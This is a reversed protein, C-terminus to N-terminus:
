CHRCIRLFKYMKLIESWFISFSKHHSWKGDGTPGCYGTWIHRSFKVRTLLETRFYILSQLYTTYKCVSLRTKLRHISLISLASPLRLSAGQLSHSGQNSGPHPVLFIAYMKITLCSENQFNIWSEFRVHFTQLLDRVIEGQRPIQYPEFVPSNHALPVSVSESGGIHCEREFWVYFAKYENCAEDPSKVVTSIFPSCVSFLEHEWLRAAFPIWSLKFTHQGFM